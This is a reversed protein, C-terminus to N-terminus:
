KIASANTKADMSLEAKENTETKPGLGNSSTFEGATDKEHFQCLLSEM